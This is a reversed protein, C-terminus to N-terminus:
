PCMRHTLWKRVPKGILILTLGMTTLFASVMLGLEASENLGFVGIGLTVVPILAPLTVGATTGLLEASRNFAYIAVVSVLVGQFGAQIFIDILPADAIQKPLALVYIPVYFFASGVAVIATANLAPVAARRVILAYCAWMAGTGALIFHGSAIAGGFWSFLAIGAVTLILGAVRTVGIKDGFIASGLAVSVIAMMGPNIAGAASAPATKLALSILLVYPAGFTMVLAAIGMGGLRDLGIGRRLAVPALIVAAVGFRLVTLDFINLSTTVGLRLMVLSGSWVMIALTAWGLGEVTRRSITSM